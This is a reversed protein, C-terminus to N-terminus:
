CEPHKDPDNDGSARSHLPHQQHLWHRMTKLMAEHIGEHAGVDPQTLLLGVTTCCFGDLADNM